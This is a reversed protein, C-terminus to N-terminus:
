ILSISSLWVHFQWLLSLSLPPYGIIARTHPCFSRPLLPLGLHQAESVWVHRGPTPLAGDGDRNEDKLSRDHQLAHLPMKHPDNTFANPLALQGVPAFSEDTAHHRPCKSSLQVETNMEQNGLMPRPTQEQTKLAKSPFHTKESGLQMFHNQQLTADSRRGKLYPSLLAPAIVFSPMM